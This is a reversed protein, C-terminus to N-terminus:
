PQPGPYFRWLYFTVEGRHREEVLVGLPGSTVRRYTVRGLVQRRQADVQFSFADQLDRWIVASLGQGPGPSQYHGATVGGTFLAWDVTFAHWAYLYAFFVASLLLLILPAVLAFEALAQARVARPRM